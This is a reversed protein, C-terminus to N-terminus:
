GNVQEALAREILTTVWSKRGRGMRLMRNRRKEAQKYCQVQITDVQPAQTETFSEMGALSQVMYKLVDVCDDDRDVPKGTSVGKRVAYQLGEVQDITTECSDFIYLKPRRVLRGSGDVNWNLLTRLRTIGAEIDSFGPIVNDVYQRVQDIVPMGGTIARAQTAPDIVTHLYAEGESLSNLYICNQDLDIDRAVWERYIYLAPEAENIAGWLCVFPHSIGVDIGRLKPWEVPIAFPRVVHVERRFKPFIAGQAAIFQGMVFMRFEEDPYDMLDALYDPSLYPNEVSPALV